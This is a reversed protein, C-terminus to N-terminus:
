SHEKERRTAKYPRYYTCRSEMVHAARVGMRQRYASWLLYLRRGGPLDVVAFALPVWCWPRQQGITYRLRDRRAFAAGAVLKGM